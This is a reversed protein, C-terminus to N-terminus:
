EGGFDGAAGGAAGAAGTVILSRLIHSHTATLHRMGAQGASSHGVAAEPAPAVPGDKGRKKLKNEVVPEEKEYERPLHEASKALEHQISLAGKRIWEEPAM